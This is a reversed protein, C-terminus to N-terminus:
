GQTRQSLMLRLWRSLYASIGAGQVRLQKLLDVEYRGAGGCARELWVDVTGSQLVQDSSM